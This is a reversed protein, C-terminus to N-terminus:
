ASVDSTLNKDYPAQIDLSEVEAYDRVCYVEDGRVLFPQNHSVMIHCLTTSRDLSRWGLHAARRWANEYYVLQAASMVFGDPTEVQTDCVERIVGTVAVGNALMDGVRLADLQKWSGNRM